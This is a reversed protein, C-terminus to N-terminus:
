WATSVHLFSDLVRGSFPRHNDPFSTKRCCAKDHHVLPYSILMTTRLLFSGEMTQLLVDITRPGALFWWCELLAASAHSDQALGLILNLRVRHTLIGQVHM